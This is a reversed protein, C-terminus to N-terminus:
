LEGQVIQWILDFHEPDDRLFRVPDKAMAELGMSVIETAEHEYVKGVYPSFFRDPKAVEHSDYGRGLPRVAEGVTRRELLDMAARHIRDVGSELYHGLEHVTTFKVERSSSASIRVVPFGDTVGFHARGNAAVEYFPREEFLQEGFDDIASDIEDFYRPHVLREFLDVGEHVGTKIEDPFEPHFESLARGNPEHRLHDTTEVLEKRLRSMENSLAMRETVSTPRNEIMQRRIERLRQIKSEDQGVNLERKMHEVYAARDTPSPRPSTPRVTPLTSPLGGRQAPLRDPDVVPVWACRCQPHVPIVGRAEEITYRTGELGACQECVRDDGATQFEVSAVVERVGAEAYRNLSSEAHSRIIETRALVRARHIGVKDIRDAITRAMENPNLGRALGDSLVRSIQQDMAATIGRLESFTRTYLSVLKDAHIPKNFTEGLLDAPPTVGHQKLVGDAHEVGKAYASRIYVDSWRSQTLGAVQQVELVEAEVQERLWATFGEIKAADTPFNFPPPSAQLTRPRTSLLLADDEGVVRRVLKEIRRFRRTMDAAFQRRLTATRTPDVRRHANLRQRAIRAHRPLPQAALFFM